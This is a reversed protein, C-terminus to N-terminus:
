RRRATPAKTTPNRAMLRHERAHVDPHDRGLTPSATSSRRPRASSPQPYADVADSWKINFESAVTKLIDFSGRAHAALADQFSRNTVSSKPTARSRQVQREDAHRGPFSRPKGAKPAFCARLQDATKGVSRSLIPAAKTCKDDVMVLGAVFHPAVVRVLVENAM